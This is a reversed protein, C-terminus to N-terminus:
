LSNVEKLDLVKGADELMMVKQNKRFKNVSTIRHKVRLNGELPKVSYTFLESSRLRGIGASTQVDDIKGLRWNKAM